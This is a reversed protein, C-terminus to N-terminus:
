GEFTYLFTFPLYIFGTKYYFLYLSFLKLAVSHSTSKLFTPDINHCLRTKSVLPL